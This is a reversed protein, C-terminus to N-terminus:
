GGSYQATGLLKGKKGYAKLEHTYYSELMGSYQISGIPIRPNVFLTAIVRGAVNNAQVFSLAKTGTDVNWTQGQKVLKEDFVNLPTGEYRLIVWIPVVSTNKVVFADAVTYQGICLIAITLVKSNKFNIM